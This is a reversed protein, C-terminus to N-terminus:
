RSSTRSKLIPVLHSLIHMLVEVVLGTSEVEAIIERPYYDLIPATEKRYIDFRRRTVEENLDDPRIELMARRRIRELMAREDNCVLHVIRKVDIHEDLIECQRPTRPIGDLLLLHKRPLFNGIAREADLWTKWVRITVDDPVLEGHSSYERVLRGDDSDPDMSRFIAGSSCHFFGPIRALIEGQTGKGAGPVGFILASALREAPM